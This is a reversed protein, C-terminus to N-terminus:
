EELCTTSRGKNELGDGPNLGVQLDQGMVRRIWREIRRTLVGWQLGKTHIGEREIGTGVIDRLITM